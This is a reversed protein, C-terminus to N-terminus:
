VLRTKGTLLERMLGPKRVDIDAVPATVEGRVVGAVVGTVPPTVPPGVQGAWRRNTAALGDRIAFESEALLEQMM